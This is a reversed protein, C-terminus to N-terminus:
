INAVLLSTYIVVLSLFYGAAVQSLSHRNLLLRCTCVIGSLIIIMAPLSLGGLSFGRYTLFVTLATLGGLGAAHGSIKWFSNIILVIGVLAAAGLMFATMWGPAHIKWLYGSLGLYCLATVAFPITRDHRNNLLPASIRGTAPLIYIAIVPLMITVGLTVLLVTVLTN